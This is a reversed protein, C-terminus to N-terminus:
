TVSLRLHNCDKTEDLVQGVDVPPIRIKKGARRQDESANNVPSVPGVCWVAAFALMADSSRDELTKMALVGIVNDRARWSRGTDHHEPGQRLPPRHREVLGFIRKRVGVTTQLVPTNTDAFDAM